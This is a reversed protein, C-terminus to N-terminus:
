LVHQVILLVNVRFPIVYYPWRLRYINIDFFALHMFIRVIRSIWLALLLWSPLSSYAVVHHARRVQNSRNGVFTWACGTSCEIVQAGRVDRTGLRFALTTWCYFSNLHGLSLGYALWKTAIGDCMIVITIYHRVPFSPILTKIMCRAVKITQVILSNIVIPDDYWLHSLLLVNTYPLNTPVCVTWLTM